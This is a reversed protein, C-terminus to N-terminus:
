GRLGGDVLFLLGAVLMAAALMYASLRLDSLREVWDTFPEASPAEASPGAAAPLPRQLVTSSHHPSM